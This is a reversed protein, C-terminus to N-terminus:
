KQILKNIDKHSIVVKKLNNLDFQLEEVKEVVAELKDVKPYYQEM